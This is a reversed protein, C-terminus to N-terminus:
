DWGLLIYSRPRRKLVQLIISALHGNLFSLLGLSLIQMVICILEVQERPNTARSEIGLSIDLGLHNLIEAAENSQQRFDVAGLLRNVFGVLV